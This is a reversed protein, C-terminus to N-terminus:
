RSRTRASKSLQELRRLSASPHRLINSSSPTLHLCPTHPLIRFLQAISCLKSQAIYLLITRCGPILGRNGRVLHHLTIGLIHNLKVLLVCGEENREGANMLDLADVFNDMADLQEETPIYPHDTVREGRKNTLYELPAFTYKRVDDAFPM